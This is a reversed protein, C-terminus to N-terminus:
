YVDDVTFLCFNIEEYPSVVGSEFLIACTKNDRCAALDSYAAPGNHIIWPKSWAESMLPSKNLFIGLDKRGEKTPHSFLLWDTHEQGPQITGPFSIVSGFCGYNIEKLKSSEEVSQFEGGADSMLAEVRKKSTGRANLYLMRKNDKYGIEALECEGCEFKDIRESIRWTNGQDESYVYFSHATPFWWFICRYKAIYAYAPAILKGSSTQIGHGPSFFVTALNHIQSTVDTINCINSWTKGYDTSNVYCMKAVNGRMKMNLETVGDPICNFFLFLVKTSEAYVPCPNMPRHNKMNFDRLAQVDEWQYM